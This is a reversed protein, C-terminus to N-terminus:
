GRGAERRAASPPRGYRRRFSRAFHSADNFGADLAIETISRGPQKVIADLSRALRTRLLFQGFSEGSRAFLKHLHRVSIRFHEAVARPTLAPEASHAAVFRRVLALHQDALTSPPGGQYALRLLHGMHDAAGDGDDRTGALTADVYDLLAAAFASGRDLRRAVAGTPDFAQDAFWDYPLHLCVQQFPGDFRMSFPRRADLLTLSGPTLRTEVERQRVVSRGGVQINVFVADCPAGAVDERRRRVVQGAATIRSISGGPGLPQMRIEGAFPGDDVREPSLRTFAQCVVERWRVFADSRGQGSASWVQPSGCASDM